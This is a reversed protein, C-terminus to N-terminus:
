LCEVNCHMSIVVRREKRPRIPTHGNVFVGLLLAHFYAFVGRAKRPRIPMNGNVFV